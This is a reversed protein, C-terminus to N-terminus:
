LDFAMPHCKSYASLSALLCVSLCCCLGQGAQCPRRQRGSTSSLTAFQKRPRTRM